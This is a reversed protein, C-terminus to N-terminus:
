PRSLGGLIFDAQERCPQGLLTGCEPTPAQSIVGPLIPFVVRSPYESTHYVQNASVSGAPISGIGPSAGLHPGLHPIPNPAAVTLELSHGKRVVHAIPALFSMRVEYVKGPILKEAKSFTHVVEEASTQKEDIEPFSARQLGSQLFTVKGDPDIDKLTLAVDADDGNDISLYLTVQPTGLLTTDSGMPGTRYNLVGAKHPLLAFQKNSGTM